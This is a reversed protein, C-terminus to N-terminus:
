DLTLPSYFPGGSHHHQLGTSTLPLLNACHSYHVPWSVVVRTGVFFGVSILARGDAGMVCIVRTAFAGRHGFTVDVYPRAVIVEVTVAALLHNVLSRSRTSNAACFQAPAPTNNIAALSRQGVSASPPAQGHLRKPRVSYVSAVRACSCSSGPRFACLACRRHTTSPSPAATTESKSPRSRSILRPPSWPDTTHGVGGVPRAVGRRLGDHALYVDLVSDLVTIYHAPRAREAGAVVVAALWNGTRRVLCVAPHDTRPVPASLGDLM